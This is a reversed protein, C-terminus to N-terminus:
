TPVLSAHTIRTRRFSEGLAVRGTETQVVTEAAASATRYSIELGGVHYLPLSLLWRCGPALQNVELSASASSLHNGVTLVVAKGAGSSGSTFIVTAEASPDLECSENGAPSTG